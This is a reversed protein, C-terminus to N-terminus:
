NNRVIVCVAHAAIGERRGTFGLAEETTAKINVNSEPLSLANATNRRMQPIYAALKPAQAVITADVNGVTYDERKLLAAVEQLLAVSDAGRYREDTDPFHRGIDGLGCAGLLADMIAHLLVDADSHGLLGTEHAISVGGLILKRGAVLKHVDYGHGIRMPIGGKDGLLAGALQLDEPTTIKLNRYDAPTLFVPGGLREILQCDDTPSVGDREAADVASLYLDRRFVQPTQAAFLRSRDPTAAIFGHEDALKVTDKVPVCLAAAGHTRADAIVQEIQSPSVLPRAGDHIAIYATKGCFPLGNRVSQMRTDGGPVVYTLKTINYTRCLEAIEAIDDAQAIILVEGVSECAEFQLASRIVVPIGCLMALQKNIGGMRSASGAAVIIVSTDAAASM